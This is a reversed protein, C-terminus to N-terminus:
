RPMEPLEWGDRYTHRIYESATELADLTTYKTDFHPHGDVVRFDDSTVVQFKEGPSINKIRMNEADWEFSRNLGQLRVALVGLLVMENFPGSYGFHASAEKRTDPSEKCARIWEGEHPGDVYGIAGKIRRLYPKVDPKRGSLLRPNFGGTDCMLIDKSGIFMCGGMGDNLFKEGDPM